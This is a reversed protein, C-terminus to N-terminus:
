ISIAAKLCDLCVRKIAPEVGHNVMYLTGGGWGCYIEWLDMCFDWHNSNHCRLFADQTPTFYISCVYVCYVYIM